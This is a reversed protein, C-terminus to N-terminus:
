KGDYINKGVEPDTGTIRPPQLSRNVARPVDKVVGCIPNSSGQSFINPM